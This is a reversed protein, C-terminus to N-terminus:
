WVQYIRYVMWIVIVLCTSIEVANFLGVFGQIRDLPDFDEEAEGLERMATENLTKM